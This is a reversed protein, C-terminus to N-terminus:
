LYHTLYARVPANDAPNWGVPVPETTEISIWRTGCKAEAYVHEYVNPEFGIAVFRAPIGIAMLLSAVLVAQDDCDGAMRELTKDPSQLLEVDVPDLQYRIQGQVFRHIAGIRCAIDKAGCSQTVKSARDIVALSKKGDRALRSM